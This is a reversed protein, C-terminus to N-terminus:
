QPIFLGNGLGVALLTAIVALGSAVIATMRWALARAEARQAVAAYETAQGIADSADDAFRDNQTLLWNVRERLAGLEVLLERGDQEVQPPERDRGPREPIGTTHQQDTVHRKDADVRALNLTPFKM